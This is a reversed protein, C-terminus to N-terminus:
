QHTMLNGIIKAENVSTKFHGTISKKIIRADIIVEAQADLRGNMTPPQYVGNISKKAHCYYM